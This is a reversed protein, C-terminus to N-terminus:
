KIIETFPTLTTGQWCTAIYAYNEATIEFPILSTDAAPIDQGDPYKGTLDLEGTIEAPLSQVYGWYAYSPTVAKVAFRYKRGQQIGWFSVNVSSTSTNFQM